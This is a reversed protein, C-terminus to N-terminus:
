DRIELQDGIHIDLKAAIRIPIYFTLTDGLVPIGIRNRKLRRISNVKLDGDSRVLLVDGSHFFSNIFTRGRVIVVEDKDLTSSRLTANVKKTSDFILASALVQADKLLWGM